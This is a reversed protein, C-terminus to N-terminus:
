PLMLPVGRVVRELEGFDFEITHGPYKGLRISEPGREMRLWAPTGEWAPKSIGSRIEWRIGSADLLKSIDMMDQPKAIELRAQRGVKTIVVLSGRKTRKVLEYEVPGAQELQLSKRLAKNIRQVDRKLPDLPDIM